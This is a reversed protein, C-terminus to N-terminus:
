GSKPKERKYNPPLTFLAPDVATPALETVEITVESATVEEKETSVLLQHWRLLLRHGAPGLEVSFQTAAASDILLLAGSATRLFAGLLDPLVPADASTWWEQTEDLQVTTSFVLVKAKIRATRGLRLRETPFGLMPAGAEREGPAVQVAELTVKGKLERAVEAPLEALEMVAYRKRRPSVIAVTRGGDTSLLYEGAKFDGRGQEIDVRVSDGLVSTRATVTSRKIKGQADTEAQDVRSVYVHGASAASQAAQPALALATSAAAFHLAILHRTTRM